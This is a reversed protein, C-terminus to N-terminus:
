PGDVAPSEAAPTRSLSWVYTAVAVLQDNDLPAWGRMPMPSGTTSERRTVGHTVLRVIMEYSGTGHLWVSDVLSPGLDTGMGDPGHCEQCNASGLFLSRGRALTSDSMDPPDAQAATPNACLVSLLVLTALLLM